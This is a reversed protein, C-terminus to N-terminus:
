TGSRYEDYHLTSSDIGVTPVGGAYYCEAHYHASLITCVSHLYVSHFLFPAFIHPTTNVHKRRWIGRLPTRGLLEAFPTPVIVIIDLQLSDSPQYAANSLM